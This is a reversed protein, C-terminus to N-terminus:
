YPIEDGPMAGALYSLRGAEVAHKMAQAMLMPERAKVLATNVLVAAAGLEMALTAHRASGLGGEVVVPIDVTDIIQRIPGPNPIGHGSAVPASMVRLASCGLAELEKATALDPLIFPMVEWGQERLQAAVEVTARNDPENTRGRVDLKFVTIGYADHLINVTKWASEASRAFSTTGIWLYKEIPIEDALDSLLLSSRNNDPDVTTIFVQSGTAELVQRIVSPSTYQEIGVLLRSTLETDGLRVWADRLGAVEMSDVSM